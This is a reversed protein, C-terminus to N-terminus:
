FNEGPIEKVPTYTSLNGIGPKDLKKLVITLKRARVTYQCDRCVFIREPPDLHNLLPDGLSSSDLLANWNKCSPCEPANGKVCETKIRTM